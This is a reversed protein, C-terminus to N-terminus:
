GLARAIEARRAERTEFTVADVRTYVVRMRSFPLPVWKRDWTPLRLGRSLEFRLAVVPRGAGLALELVGDRVQRAPGHPGDPNLFTPAGAAVKPILAALAARGGHGSSGLVLERVGMWRLFLHIPKMYWAPHNMWVYPRPYPLCAVFYPLLFAHWACTIAAGAEDEARGVHEVRVTLKLLGWLLVLLAASAAGWLWLLPRLPWPLDDVRSGV